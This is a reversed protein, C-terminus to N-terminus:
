KSFNRLLFVFFDCITPLMELKEIKDPDLIFNISISIVKGAIRDIIIKM